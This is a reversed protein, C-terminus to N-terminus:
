HYKANQSFCLTVADFSVCLKANPFLLIACKQLAFQLISLTKIKIHLPTKDAHITYRMHATNASVLSIHGMGAMQTSPIISLDEPLAAM